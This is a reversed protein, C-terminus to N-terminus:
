GCPTKSCSQGPPACIGCSANCCEMGANCTALGCTVSIPYEIAGSCPTTDCSGGPPVCTGCSPNCCVYGLNCTNIGCLASVPLAAVSCDRQSCTEGPKACFGCSPNCCVLGSACLAPGCEVFREVVPGSGADLPAEAVAQNESAADVTPAGADPLRALVAVDAESAASARPTPELPNPAVGADAAIVPPAAPPQEVRAPTAAQESRTWAPVNVRPAESRLAQEEDGRQRVAWIVLAVLVSVLALAAAALRRRTARTLRIEQRTVSSSCHL